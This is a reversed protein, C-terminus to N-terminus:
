EGIYQLENDTVLLQPCSFQCIINRWIFREVDVEKTSSLAEAEIWKTFYDTPIIMVDKKVPTPLLPGVLNITWQMFPLSSNWPHYVEVLLSPVYKYRQGRDRGLGLPQHFGWRQVDWVM